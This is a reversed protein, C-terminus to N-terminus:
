NHAMEVLGYWPTEPYFVWRNNKMIFTWGSTDTLVFALEKDKSYSISKIPDMEGTSPQREPNAYGHIEAVLEAREPTDCKWGDRWAELVSEVTPYKAQMEPTFYKPDHPHRFTLWTALSVVALVLVIIIGAVKLKRNM